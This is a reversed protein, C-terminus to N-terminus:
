LPLRVQAVTRGHQDVGMGVQVGSLRSYLQRNHDNAVHYADIVNWVYLGIVTTMGGIVAAKRGASLESFDKYPNDAWRKHEDFDIVGDGDGGRAPDDFDEITLSLNNGGIGVATVAAVMGGMFMAGRVWKGVYMQGTGPVGISLFAALVPDKPIVLRYHTEQMGLVLTETHLPTASTDTAAAIASQAYRPSAIMLAVLACIGAFSKAHIMQVAEEHSCPSVDANAMAENVMTPFSAAPISLTVKSFRECTRFIHSQKPTIPLEAFALQREPENPRLSIGRM